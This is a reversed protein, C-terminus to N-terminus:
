EFKLDKFGCIIKSTIEMTTVCEVGVSGQLLVLRGSWMEGLARRCRSGSLGTAIPMVEDRTGQLVGV